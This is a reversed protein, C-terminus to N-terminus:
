GRKIDLPVMAECYSTQLERLRERDFLAKSNLKLVGAASKVRPVVLV